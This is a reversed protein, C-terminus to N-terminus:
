LSLNQLGIGQKGYLWQLGDYFDEATNARMTTNRVEAKAGAPHYIFEGILRSSMQVRGTRPARLRNYAALAAAIDDGAKAVAEALCVADELAMCAGQAFYQLMPHAADGLLAVRGDVWNSVPERDCLVWLKWDQGHEIIQRARECIHPFSRHVDEKPVPKGAVAELADNHATVVLNFMKGGKLPYHVLHCKPGAWLTAANWRLDSPMREAPIVSRFTTHGSVIPEGDNVVKRRIASRLGDAGILCCGPIKEGSALRAEVGRSDQEYDEVRANVRLDVIRSDRSARLLAEHLDARHVVAYPNGFRRRFEGGLPIGTIREGRVADMLVLEDIFVANARAYPGVGLMDFVHFANPALQIGAGIEGFQSAQELVISHRGNRALALAAALGGLGGGAILFPAATERSM